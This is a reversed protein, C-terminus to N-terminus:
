KNLTPAGDGRPRWRAKAAKMASKRRETPTMSEARAKGGKLGGLRGLAVAAPNKAETGETRAIIRQVAEFASQNEDREQLHAKSVPRLKPKQKTHATRGTRSRKPM